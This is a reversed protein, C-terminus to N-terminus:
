EPLPEMGESSWIVKLIKPITGSRDNIGSQPKSIAARAGAQRAETLQSESSTLVIITADTQDKSMRLFTLGDMVPMSIDLIIVQPRFEALKDLAEQGNKAETVIDLRPDLAFARRTLKRVMMSDDVIMVRRKDGGDSM